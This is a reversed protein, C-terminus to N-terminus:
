LASLKLEKRVVYNMNQLRQLYEAYTISKGEPLKIIADVDMLEDVETNRIIDALNIEAFNPKDIKKLLNKCRQLDQPYDVSYGVKNKDPHDSIFDICGKRSEEDLMVFWTLYESQYPNEMNYYLKYLYGISFLEATIGFPLSNCRVYELQNELYLEVMQDLLYPDTFPNDGTIRFVAGAKEHEAIDIMRDIVSLPDGAYAPLGKNEAKEILERDEDLYSSALIVKKVKQSTSVRTILDFILLDNHFEKFVKLPLRNSKLRAIITAIVNEKDYKGAKIEYYDSGYDSRKVIVNNNETIYKKYMINRYYRETAVPQKFNNGLSSQYKHVQNVLISFEDPELSVQWDYNRNNRSMTIHKELYEIGKALAMLPIGSTDLTHDAFGVKYQPWEHHIFDLTNLSLDEYETPYNSFGHFIAEIKDKLIDIAIQIDRKTACQTELLVKVNLSAIKELFPINLLDTAHIKIFSFGNNIVLELSPEDLICPILELEINKCYEFVRIWEESCLEVEKCIEYKSYDKTCFAETNYVQITFYDAGSKKSAHALELLYELNGNHNFASEAIIKM